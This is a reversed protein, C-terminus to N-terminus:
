KKSDLEMDKIRWNIMNLAGEGLIGDEVAKELIPLYKYRTELSTSHHIVLAPTFNGDRGVLEVSPYGYENLINEIKILNISDITQMEERLENELEPTINKASIRNRIGQDEKYIRTLATVLEMNFGTSDEVEKSQEVLKEEEETSKAYAAYSSTKNLKDCLEVVNKFKLTDLKLINVGFNHKDYLYYWEYIQNCNTQDESISLELLNFTQKSEVKLNALQVAATFNDNSKYAEKLLNVHKEYQGQSQEPHKNPIRKEIENKCSCLLLIWGLIIIAKYKGAM